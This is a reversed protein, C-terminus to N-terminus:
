RSIRIFSGLITELAVWSQYREALWHWIIGSGGALLWMVCETTTLWLSSLHRGADTNVLCTSSVCALWPFCGFCCKKKRYLVKQFWFKVGWIHSMISLYVSFLLPVILCLSILLVSKRGPIIRSDSFWASSLISDLSVVSFLSYDYRHIKLCVHCAMVSWFSFRNWRYIVFLISHM